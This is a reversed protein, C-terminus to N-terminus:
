HHMKDIFAWNLRIAEYQRYLRQMCFQYFEIENTLNKRLINKAEESVPPKYM